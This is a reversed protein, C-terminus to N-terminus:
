NILMNEIGVFQKDIYGHLDELDKVQAEITDRFSNVSQCILLLEILLEHRRRMNFVLLKFRDRHIDAKRPEMEYKRYITELEMLSKGLTGFISKKKKAFSVYLERFREVTQGLSRLERECYAYNANRLRKTAAELGILVQDARQRLESLRIIPYPIPLSTMMLTESNDPFVFTQEHVELPDSRRTLSCLGNNCEFMIGYTDNGACEYSGRRLSYPILSPITSEILVMDMDGGGKYGDEDLEIYAVNGKNNVAKIYKAKVTGQKDKTYVVSQMMYGYKSIEDEATPMERDREIESEQDRFEIPEVREVEEDVMDSLERIARPTENKPLEITAPLVPPISQPMRNNQGIPVPSPSRVTKDEDEM